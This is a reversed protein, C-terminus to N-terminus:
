KMEPCTGPHEHKKCFPCLESKGFAAPAGPGSPKGANVAPAAPKMAPAPKGAGPKQERIGAPPPTLSLGPTVPAIKPAVAPLSSAGAGAMKSKLASHMAGTYQPKPAAGAPAAVAGAPRPARNGANPAPDGLAKAFDTKTIGPKSTNSAVPAPTTGPVKGSPPKAMPVDAKGLGNGKPKMVSGSGPSKIEKTKDPCIEDKNMESMAMDGGGMPMDDKVMPAAPMPGGNNLCTCSGPMDANGCLACLDAAPQAAELQGAPIGAAAGVPDKGTEPNPPANLATQEHGGPEMHEPVGVELAEHTGPEQHADGAMDTGGISKSLKQADIERRWLEEIEPAHKQILDRVHKALIQKFEPISYAKNAM